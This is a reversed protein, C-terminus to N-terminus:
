RSGPTTGSTGTPRAPSGPPWRSRGSRASRSSPWASRATRTSRAKWSFDPLSRGTAVHRLLAGIGNIAYDRHEELGHGANPLYVIRSPGQIEDWYFRTSDHTWYRDNTGNIQLVPKDIEDLYFYPDVMEWLKEGGPEEFTRTLGRTTYDEIQESYKGWLAMQNETNAKMNLTPIVMPAIAAVRDDVAGTLWTTWGRKSAGTVVFREVPEGTEEAWQQAADMAAVASKVMPQLLPWDQEGTKLFNVFTEAILDDETRDGLLPQNPVQPLVAVRADCAAALAFAQLDDEPKHQSRSSGGTIFLLMVDKHTYEKPTYIRFQHRWPIERWTQSVLDVHEVTGLPTEVAREVEWAFSPDPREVYGPLDAADAASTMALGFVLATAIPGVPRIATSVHPM